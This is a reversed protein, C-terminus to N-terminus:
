KFLHNLLSSSIRVLGHCSLLQIPLAYLFGIGHAGSEVLSLLIHHSPEAVSYTSARRFNSICM